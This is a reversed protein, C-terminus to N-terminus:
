TISIKQIIKNCFQCPTRSCICFFQYILPSNKNIRYIFKFIGFFYINIIYNTANEYRECEVLYKGVMEGDHVDIGDAGVRLNSRKMYYKLKNKDHM